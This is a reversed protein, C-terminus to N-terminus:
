ASGPEDNAPEARVERAGPGPIGADDLAAATLARGLAIMDAARHFDLSRCASRPVEVFVDPPYAALQFRSLASQMIDLSRNMVAVRGFKPTHLDDTGTDTEDVTKDVFSDDNDAGSASFRNVVSRVIDTELVSAASRRFRGM